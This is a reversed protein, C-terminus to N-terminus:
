ESTTKYVKTNISATNIIRNTMKVQKTTKGSAILLSNMLNFDFLFTCTYLLLPSPRVFSVLTYTRWLMLDQTCNHQCISRVALSAATSFGELRGLIAMLSSHSGALIFKALRTRVRKLVVVISRSIVNASPSCLTVKRGDRKEVIRVSSSNSCKPSDFCYLTFHV